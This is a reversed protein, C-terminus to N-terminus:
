LDFEDKLERRLRQEEFYDELQRRSTGSNNSHTSSQELQNADDLGADIDLIDDEILDDTRQKVSQVANNSLVKKDKGSM